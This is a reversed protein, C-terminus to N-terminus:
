LVSCHSKHGHWEPLCGRSPKIQSRSFIALFFGYKNNMGVQLTPIIERMFESWLEGLNYLLDFNEGLRKKEENLNELLCKMGGKMLTNKYESFTVILFSIRGATCSQSSINLM